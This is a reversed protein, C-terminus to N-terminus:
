LLSWAVRDDFFFFSVVELFIPVLFIPVLTLLIMTSLMSESFSPDWDYLSIISFHYRSSTDVFYIILVRLSDSFEGVIDVVRVHLLFKLLIVSYPSLIRRPVSGYTSM